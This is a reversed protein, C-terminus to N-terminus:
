TYMYFHVNMNFTRVYTHTCYNLLKGRRFSHSLTDSDLDAEVLFPMSNPRTFDGSSKEASLPVSTKTKMGGDWDISSQPTSAKKLPIVLGDNENTSSSSSQVRPVVSHGSFQVGSQIDEEEESSFFM